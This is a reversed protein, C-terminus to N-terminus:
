EVENGCMKAGCSPCYSFEADRPIECNSCRFIENIYGDEDRYKRVLVWKAHVVPQFEALTESKLLKEAEDKYQWECCDCPYNRMYNHPCSECQTEDCMKTVFEFDAIAIELLRKLERNEKQLGKKIENLKELDARLNRVNHKYLDVGSELYENCKKSCMLCIRDIYNELPTECKLMEPNDFINGVVMIKNGINRFPMFTQFDIFHWEVGFAGDIFKVIGIFSKDFECKKDDFAKVLDGEFLLNNICDTMNTFQGVTEPKVLYGFFKCKPQINSSGLGNESYFGKIWEGGDIKKGRFLIERM